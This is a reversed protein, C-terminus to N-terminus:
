FFMKGGSCVIYIAVRQQGNGRLASLFNKFKLFRTVLQMTRILIVNKVYDSRQRQEDSDYKIDPCQQDTIEHRRCLGELLGFQCEMTRM